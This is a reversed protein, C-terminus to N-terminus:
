ATWDDQVSMLIWDDLSQAGFVRYLRLAAENKRHVLWQMRRCGQERAIMTLRELLARAVGSRRFKPDVYLDELYLGIRSVWTSYNFFYLAMGAPADDVEAILSQFRPQGGFGDELLDTESVAIAQPSGQEAASECLMRLMLPVDAPRAPRIM